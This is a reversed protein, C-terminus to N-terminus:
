LRRRRAARRVDRAARRSENEVARACRCCARALVRARSTVPAHCPATVRVHSAVGLAGVHALRPAPCAPVILRFVFISPFLCYPALPAVLSSPVISPTRAHAVSLAARAPQAHDHRCCAVTVMVTVALSRLRLARRAARLDAFGEALRQPFLRFTRGGGALRTGDRHARASVGRRQTGFPPAHQTSGAVAPISNVGSQGADLAGGGKRVAIARARERAREAAATGAAAGAELAAAAAEVRAREDQLAAAAAAAAWDGGGRAHPVGGGGGSCSALARAHAAAQTAQWQRLQVAQAAHVAQWSAASEAEAAYADADADADAQHTPLARRAAAAAALASPPPADQLDGMRAHLLQVALERQGLTRALADGDDDDDDAAAGDDDDGSDAHAVTVPRSSAATSTRVATAHARPATAQPTTATPSAAWPMQTVRPARGRSTSLAQTQSL